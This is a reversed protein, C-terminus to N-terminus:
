AFLGEAGDDGEAIGIRLVHDSVVDAIMGGQGVADFGERGGDVDVVGGAGSCGVHAAFCRNDEAVGDVEDGFDDDHEEKEEEEKAVAL